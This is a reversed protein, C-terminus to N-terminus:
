AVKEGYVDPRLVYRSIQTLEEIALVYEAPIAKWQHISSPTIPKGHKLCVAAVRTVRGNEARMWEWLADMARITLVV